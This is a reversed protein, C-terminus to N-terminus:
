QTSKQSTKIFAIKLIDEFTGWNVLKTDEFMGDYPDPIGAILQNVNSWCELSQGHHILWM